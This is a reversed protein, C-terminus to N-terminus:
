GTFPQGRQIMDRMGSILGLARHIQAITQDRMFQQSQADVAITRRHDIQGALTSMREQLVAAIPGIGFLNGRNASGNGVSVKIASHQRYYLVHGAVTQRREVTMVLQRM